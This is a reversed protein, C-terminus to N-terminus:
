LKCCGRVAGCFENELGCCGFGVPAFAMGPVIGHYRFGLQIRHERGYIYADLEVPCGAAFVSCTTQVNINGLIGFTDSVAPNVVM